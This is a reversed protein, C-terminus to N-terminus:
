TDTKDKHIVIQNRGNNKASYLAEDAKKILSDITDSEFDFSSIGVSLTIKTSINNHNFKYEKLQQQLREALEIGTFISTFPLLLIFEEGGYRCLIDSERSISKILVGFESLIQDGFDHGHTDNIKKFYDLDIYLLTLPTRLRKTLAIITHAHELFYRRNGINTLTDIFALKKLNRNAHRLKKTKEKIKEELNNNLHELKEKTTILETVERAIGFVYKKDNIKDHLPTVMTNWYRVKGDVEVREDETISENLELARHYKDEFEKAANVGLFNKLKKNIVTQKNLNFNKEQSPNMDVLVFDNDKDLEVIFINDETQNWFFKLLQLQGSTIAHNDIFM